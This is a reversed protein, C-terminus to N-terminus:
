SILNLIKSEFIEFLNVSAVGILIGGFIPNFLPIESKINKLFKFFLYGLYIILLQILFLGLSYGFLININLLPKDLLISGYAWGHFIGFTSFLVGKFVIKRKSLLVFSLLMLTLSILIEYFPLYFGFIISTLGLITGSIFAFTFNYFKNSIYSILGVGLIFVLHDLGLIPHGIGSFFGDSFNQMNEGNLPHHSYVLSPFLLSLPYLLFHYM